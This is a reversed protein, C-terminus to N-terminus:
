KRWSLSWTSGQSERKYLSITSFLKLYNKSITAFFVTKGHLM